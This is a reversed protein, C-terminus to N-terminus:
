GKNNKWVKYAEIDSKFAKLVLTFVSGDDVYGFVPIFDPIVDIPAVLYAVAFGISAIFKWPINRYSGNWYDNLLAWLVKFIEFQEGLKSAKVEAKDSDAMVKLLDEESFNETGFQFAQEVKEKEKSDM